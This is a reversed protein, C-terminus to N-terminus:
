GHRQRFRPAAAADGIVPGAIDVHEGGQEQHHGEEHREEHEGIIEDSRLRAALVGHQGPEVTLEGLEGLKERELAGLLLRDFVAQRCQLRRQDVLVLLVRPQGTQEAILAALGLAGFGLGALHATSIRL